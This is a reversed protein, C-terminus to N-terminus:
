ACQRVPSDGKNSHTLVSYIFDVCKVGGLKLCEGCLYLADILEKLTLHWCDMMRDVPFVFIGAEAGPVVVVVFGPLPLAQCLPSKKRRQYGRCHRGGPGVRLRLIRRLGPLESGVPSSANATFRTQDRHLSVASSVDLRIPTVHHPNDKRCPSGPDDRAPKPCQFLLDTLKTFSWLMWSSRRNRSVWAVSFRKWSGVWPYAFM